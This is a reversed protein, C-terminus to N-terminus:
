RQVPTSKEIDFRDGPSLEMVKDSYRDVVIVNHTGLVTGMRNGEVAFIANEDIGIGLPYDAQQLAAKLRPMRNRKIFHQDLILGSLLGLGNRLGVVLPEQALNVGMLAVESMIATGASTGGMPIGRNYANRIALGVEPHSDIVNLAENQDGGSFFVGTADALQNLFTQKDRAMDERAVSRQVSAAGLALMRGGHHRVTEEVDETSWTVVLIRADSGGAWRIFM